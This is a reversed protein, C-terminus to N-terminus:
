LREQEAGRLSLNLSEAWLRLRLSIFPIPRQVHDYGSCDIEQAISRRSPGPVFSTFISAGILDRVFSCRVVRGGSVEALDERFLHM